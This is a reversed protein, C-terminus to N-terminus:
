SLLLAFAALSRAVKLVPKVVPKYKEARYLTLMERELNGITGRSFLRRGALRADANELTHRVQDLVVRRLMGSRSMLARYGTLALEGIASDSVYESERQFHHLGKDLFQDIDRGAVSPRTPFQLKLDGEIQAVTARWDNMLEKHIIISRLSDRTAYESELSYRLWLLLSKATAFRNRASLSDAVEYPHRVMILFRPTVGQCHLVPLWKPVLRSMDPDKVGWLSADAFDEGIVDAIRRQFPEVKQAGARDRPLPWVFGASAGMVSLIRRNLRLLEGHEWHGKPNFPGPPVLRTGLETGLLNCVRTMASTGSRHMGLILIAHGM